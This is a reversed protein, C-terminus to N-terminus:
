SGMQFISNCNTYTYHIKGLKLKLALSVSDFKVISEFINKMCKIYM